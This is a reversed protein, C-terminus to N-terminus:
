YGEVREHISFIGILARGSCITNYIPNNSSLVQIVWSNFAKTASQVEEKKLHEFQKTDLADKELKSVKEFVENELKSEVFRKYDNIGQIGPPSV